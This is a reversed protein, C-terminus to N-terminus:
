LITKSVDKDNIVSALEESAQNLNIDFKGGARGLM